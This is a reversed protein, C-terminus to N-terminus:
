SKSVALVRLGPIGAFDRINDTALAFGHEIAQSALWLDQVRQRIKGSKRLQAAVLGFIDGTAVGIPLSPKRKLRELAALRQVKTAADSALEAGFRLEALTVPSIFVPEDGTVREVDDPTLSANTVSVWICTDILVGM